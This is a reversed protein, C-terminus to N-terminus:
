AALDFSNNLPPVIHNRRLIDFALSAAPTHFLVRLDGEVLHKGDYTVSHDQDGAVKIDKVAMRAAYTGLATVARGHRDLDLKKLVNTAVEFATERDHGEIANLVNIVDTTQGGEALEILKACYSERMEIVDGPPRGNQDLGFESPIFTSTIHEVQTKSLVNPKVNESAM